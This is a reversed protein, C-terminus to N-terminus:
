ERLLAILMATMREVDKATARRQNLLIGYRRAGWLATVLLQVTGRELIPVNPQGFSCTGEL